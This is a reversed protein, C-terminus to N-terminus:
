SPCFFSAFATRPRRWTAAWCPRRCDWRRGPMAHVATQWHLVNFAIWALALGGCFVPASGIFQILPVMARRVAGRGFALALPIGVAFAVVAGYVLLELTAPLRMMVTQDAAVGSISSRGFDLHVFTMLRLLFVHAFDQMGHAAALTSLAAAGLVAGALWLILKGLQLLLFRWM